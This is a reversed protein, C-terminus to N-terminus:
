ATLKLKNFRETHAMISVTRAVCKPDQLDTESLMCFVAQVHFNGPSKVLAAVTVPAGEQAGDPPLPAYLIEEGYNRWGNEYFTTIYPAKCLEQTVHEGPNTLDHEMRIGTMVIRRAEAKQMEAVTMLHDFIVAGDPRGAIENFFGRMNESM